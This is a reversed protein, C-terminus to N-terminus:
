TITVWDRAIYWTNDAVASGQKIQSAGMSNSVMLWRKSVM